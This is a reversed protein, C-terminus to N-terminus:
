KTLIKPAIQYIDGAGMTVIVYNNDFRNMNIYKIVSELDPIYQANQHKNIVDILKRSSIGNNKVERASAYIDSIIVMHTNIFAGTFEDFLVQTRSYTHPQFICIIKKDPFTQHLAQLSARIETPHHAYDDYLIAGTSLMGKYELRRKTGRFEALSKKIADSSMGIKIGVIVAIVANMANHQGLVNISFEGLLKKNYEVQFSTIGDRIFVNKLVCNNSSNLGFTILLGKYNEIIKKSYNDDGNAILVGNKQINNTFKLYANQVSQIDPYLDPHDFEINTIILIEPNQYLFKAIRDYQPENAYEDAEAVFYRGKGFHGSSGLSPIDGTGIIFSPDKGSVSLMTAIMATTTTKGHCGSISIGSFLREFIKGKMFEGVAQGQTWVPINKEKATKVEINNYGGHAGTTIVLDIDHVHEPTFGVQPIIGNEGLEHDTIFEADIDCGTVSFGAQKAVIALPAMGVGKIGVFHIRKM